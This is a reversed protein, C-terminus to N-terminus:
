ARRTPVLSLGRVAGRSVRGRGCCRSCRTTSRRAPRSSATSSPSRRARARAPAAGLARRRRRPAALVRPPADARARRRTCRSCTSPWPTAPSADGLRPDPVRRPRGRRRAGGRARGRRLGDRTGKVFSRPMYWRARRTRAPSSSSRARRARGPRAPDLVLRDAVGDIATTRSTRTGRAATWRGPRRSWCTTTSAAAGDRSGMLARPSRASRRAASSRARVRAIRQWNRFDEVFAGPEGPEDREIACRASARGPQARRRAGAARGGRRRARRSCCSATASRVGRRARAPRSPRQDLLLCVVARYHGLADRTLRAPPGGRGRPPRSGAPPPAPRSARAIPSPRGRARPGARRRRRARRAARRRRPPRGRGARPPATTWGGASGRPAGGARPEVEDERDVVEAEEAGPRVQQLPRLEAEAVVRLVGLAARRQRAWSQGTPSRSGPPAGPSRGRAAARRGPRPEVGGPEEAGAGPARGRGRGRVALPDDLGRAGGRGARRGAPFAGHAVDGVDALHLRVLPAPTRPSRACSGGSAPM